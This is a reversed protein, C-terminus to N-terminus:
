KKRAKLKDWVESGPTDGTLCAIIFFIILIVVLISYGTTTKLNYPMDAVIAILVCFNSGLRRFKNSSCELWYLCM